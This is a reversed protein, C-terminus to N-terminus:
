QTKYQKYQTQKLKYQTQKLKYQTQKLKYPTQKLKYQTQKLKNQLTHTNWYYTYKYKSHKTNNTSHKKYRKTQTYKNKNTKNTSTYPSSGSLSLEVATILLLLLLLYLIPKRATPTEFVPLQVQLKGYCKRIWAIYQSMASFYFLVSEKSMKYNAMGLDIYKVVDLLSRQPIFAVITRNALRWLASDVALFLAVSCYLHCLAFCLLCVSFYMLISSVFFVFLLAIALLGRCLPV